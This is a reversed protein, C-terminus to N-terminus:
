FGLEKPKSKECNTTELVKEGRSIGFRATQETATRRVLLKPLFGVGLLIRGPPPPSAPTSFEAETKTHLKVALFATM